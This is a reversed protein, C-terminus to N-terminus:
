SLLGSEDCWHQPVGHGQPEERGKLIVWTGESDVQPPTPTKAIPSQTETTPLCLDLWWIM